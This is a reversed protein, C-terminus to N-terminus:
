NEMKLIVYRKASVKGEIHCKASVGCKSRMFTLDSLISHNISAGLKRKPEVGV